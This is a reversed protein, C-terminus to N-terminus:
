DDTKFLKEDLEKLVKGEVLEMTMFLKGDHTATMKHGVLVGEIPKFDSIRTEEVVERKGTPTLGLSKRVTRVLLGSKKDFSCEVNRFDKADVSIVIVDSTDFKDDRLYKLTYKDQLLPLLTSIDQLMAAQKLESKADDEVPQSKGNTTNRYKDGAMVQLMEIKQGAFVTTMSMRLRNPAAYIVDSTFDAETGFSVMKGKVKSHTKTFAALKEKGGHEKIAREIVLKPDPPAQRASAAGLTLLASFVLASFIGRM